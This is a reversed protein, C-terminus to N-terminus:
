INGKELDTCCIKQLIVCYILQFIFECLSCESCFSHANLRVATVASAAHPRSVGFLIVVHHVGVVEAGFVAFPALRKARHVPDSAALDLGSHQEM